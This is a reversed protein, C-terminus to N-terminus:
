FEITKMVFHTDTAQLGECANLVRAHIQHLQAVDRIELELLGDYAGTLTSYEVVQPIQGITALFEPLRATELRVLVFVRLPDM